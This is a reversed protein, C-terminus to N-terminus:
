RLSSKKEFILLAQRAAQQEAEQKSNGVGQASQNKGINVCVKFLKQHDPGFSSLVQYKPSHYGKAQVVEQLHSKYDEPLRDSFISQSPILLNKEVFQFAAEFGSDAFVAGIIAEFTDALISPNTDGGSEKEGKSLFIKEGIGLRIGALSLTKTQVLKSRLATLKGEPFQPYRQYLYLSVILELVADGLFELRENSSFHQSLHENLYSRHTLSIKLLKKNKFQKELDFNM